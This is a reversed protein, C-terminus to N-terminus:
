KVDDFAAITISRSVTLKKTMVLYLKIMFKYTNHPSQHLLKAASNPCKRQVKGSLGVMVVVTSIRCSLLRKVSM